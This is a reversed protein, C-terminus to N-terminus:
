ITANRRGDPIGIVLLMPTIQLSTLSFHIYRKNSNALAYVCLVDHTYACISSNLFLSNAM